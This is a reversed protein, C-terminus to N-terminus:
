EGLEEERHSRESRVADVHPGHELLRPMQWESTAKDMGAGLVFVACQQNCCICRYEEWGCGMCILLSVPLLLV